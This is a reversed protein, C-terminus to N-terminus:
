DRTFKVNGFLFMDAFVLGLYVIPYFISALIAVPGSISFITNRKLAALIAAGILIRSVVDDEPDIVSGMNPRPIGSDVGGASKRIDGGINKISDLLNKFINDDGEIIEKTKNQVEAIRENKKSSLKMGNTRSGGVMDPLETVISQPMIPLEVPEATVSMPAPTVAPYNPVSTNEPQNSNM